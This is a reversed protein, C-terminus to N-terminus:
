AAGRATPTRPRSAGARLGNTITRAIERETCGCRGTVMHAAAQHLADEATASPLAQGGVLQGLAVAAAFLVSSHRGSRAAAVKDCEGRVAADVYASHQESGTQPAATRAVVPKPTLRQHLWTPLDAVPLDDTITYSGTPTSSGPAVVYGGHARTDVKWGLGNGEEGQTSRLQAGAPARYYLHTGGRTTRVSFTEWPVPHGAERCVLDFVDHGERVGERNWGDPPVDAPSKATDLDVVVLGSPGTAIGINFGGAAWCRRITDPDTTARQEWGLHGGECPGTRPCRTLGHLAPRKDGPRLPFVHWGRAAAHLAATLMTM